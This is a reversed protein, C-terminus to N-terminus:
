RGPASPTATASRNPSSTVTATSFWHDAQVQVAGGFLQYVIISARRRGDENTEFVVQFARQDGNDAAAVAEVGGNVAPVLQAANSLVSANPNPPPLVQGPFGPTHQPGPPQPYATPDEGDEVEDPGSGSSLPTGTFSPSGVAPVSLLLLAEDEPLSETQGTTGALMIMVTELGNAEPYFQIVGTQVEDTHWGDDFGGLNGVVKAGAAYTPGIDATFTGDETVVTGYGISYETGTSSLIFGGGDYYSLANESEGETPGLFEGWSRGSWSTPSINGELSYDDSAYATAIEDPTFGLTGLSVGASEALDGMIVYYTNLPIVPTMFPGLEASKAAELPQSATEISGAHTGCAATWDLQLRDRSIWAQQRADPEANQDALVEEHPRLYGALDDADIAFADLKSAVDRLGVDMGKVADVYDRTVGLNQTARPGFWAPLAASYFTEAAEIDDAFIDARTRFAAALDRLTTAITTLEDATIM